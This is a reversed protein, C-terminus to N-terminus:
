DDIRFGRTTRLGDYDIVVTYYGERTVAFLSGSDVEATWIVPVGNRAYGVECPAEGDVTTLFLGLKDPAVSRDLAVTCAGSGGVLEVHDKATHTEVAGIAGAAVALGALSLIVPRFVPTIAWHIAAPFTRVTAAESNTDRGSRQDDLSAAATTEAAAAEEAWAGVSTLAAGGGLAVLLLGRLSTTNLRATLFAIREAAGACEECTRFHVRLLTEGRKDLKGLRMRALDEVWPQCRTPVLDRAIRRVYSLRLADRARLFRVSAANESIDLAKAAEPNSMGEGLRLCLVQRHSESVEHLAALADEELGEVTSTSVGPVTDTVWDEIDAVALTRASSRYYDASITRVTQLLYNRFSRTPGKGRSIQEFVRTFAEAVFDRAVEPAPASGLALVLAGDYYKGYLVAAATQDGDRVAAILASDASHPTQTM